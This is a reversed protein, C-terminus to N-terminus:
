AVDLEGRLTYCAILDAHEEFPEKEDFYTVSFADIKKSKVRKKDCRQVMIKALLELFEDPLCFQATLVLQKCTNCDCTTNKCGCDSECHQLANHCSASYDLDRTVPKWECSIDQEESSDCTDIRLGAFDTFPPTNYYEKDEDYQFIFTTQSALSLAFIDYGLAKNIKAKAIKLHQEFAGETEYCKGLTGCNITELQQKTIEM